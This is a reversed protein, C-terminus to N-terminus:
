EMSPECIALPMWGTTGSKEMEVCTATQECFVYNDSVQLLISMTSSCFDNLLFSISSASFCCVTRNALPRARECYSVGARFVKLKSLMIYDASTSSPAEIMKPFWRKRLITASKSGFYASADALNSFVYIIQSTTFRTRFFLGFPPKTFFSGM